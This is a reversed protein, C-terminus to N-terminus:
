SAETYRGTVRDYQLYATGLQGIRSNRVKQVHIGVPANPDTKDRSVAICNDAMNFFHASDSIDYPTPVPLKGDEKHMIRPHAVLWIHLDTQAKFAALKALFSKVHETITVGGPRSHDMRNWPDLVLGRIGKRFVFGRAIGLLTDLTPMEPDLFLFRDGAWEGFHRFEGDSMEPTVGPWYPRGIYKQALKIAHQETPANEPSYLAFTWGDFRALNMLLADLWESKGSGPIGTVVTLEGPAVTYLADVAKWGTSSGRQQQTKRILLAAEVVSGLWHAGDVPYDEANGICRRVMEPGHTILVDNADKCGEPWTVRCCKSKGIRRALEAELAKGPADNDGALVVTHVADFLAEGSELYAMEGSGSSAGNPVSLVANIGATACALVDMEGEVIVLQEAGAAQDLGFLILECEAEMAFKKGPYRTKVNVLEGGRTYPFKIAGGELYVGYKAMAENSICREAFFVSAPGGVPRKDVSADPKRYVKVPKLRAGYGTGDSKLKGKFGCYHCRYLGDDVNVSLSKDRWNNRMGPQGCQPCRTKQNGSRGGIVHIGLEDFTEAM